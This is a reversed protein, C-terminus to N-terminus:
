CEALACAFSPSVSGSRGNAQGCAENTGHLSIVAAAVTTQNSRVTRQNKPMSAVDRFDATLQTRGRTTVAAAAPRIKM